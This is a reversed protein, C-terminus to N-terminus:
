RVPIQLKQKPFILDPNKIKNADAIITFLIGRRLFNRAIIWLADGRRVTYFTDDAGTAAPMEFGHVVEGIIKGDGDHMRVALRYRNGPTLEGVDAGLGFHKHDSVRTWGLKDGGLHLTVRMRPLANGIVVIRGTSLYDIKTVTLDGDSLIPAQLITSGSDTMLLSLSNEAGRESIYIFLDNKSKINDAGILSVTYNGSNWKATPAYVFDGNKDTLETAVIKGNVRISINTNSTYRGAIVVAGNQEIRAIDFVPIDTPITRVTPEPIVPATANSSINFCTRCVTAFAIVLVIVLCTIPFWYDRLLGRKSSHGFLRTAFASRRSMWSNQRAVANEIHNDTAKKTKGITTKTKAM